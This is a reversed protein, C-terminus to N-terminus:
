KAFFLFCPVKRGALSGRQLGSIRSLGKTIKMSLRLHFKEVEQPNQTPFGDKDHVLGTVHHRYGDYDDGFSAM